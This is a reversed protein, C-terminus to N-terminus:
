PAPAQMAQPLVLKESKIRKSDITSSEFLKTPLARIYCLTIANWLVQLVLFIVTSSSLKNM